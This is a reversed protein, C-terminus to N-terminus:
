DIVEDILRKLEEKERPNRFTIDFNAGSETNFDGMDKEKYLWEYESYNPRFRNDPQVSSPEDYGKRITYAPEAAPETAPMKQVPPQEAASGAQQPPRQMFQPKEVPPMPASPQQYMYPQQAEPAAPKPAQAFQQREQMVPRSQVPPQQAFAPQQMSAPQEMEAAAALEEETCDGNRFAGIKEM